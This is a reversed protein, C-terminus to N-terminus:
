ATAEPTSAQADRGGRDGRDRPAEMGGPAGMAGMGGSSTTSATFDTTADGAVLKGTAGEALGPVSLTVCQFSVPVTCRALVEGSESEVSLETNASGNLSVLAFPQTSGESFTEAMGAGGALIVTGGTVTAGYEYDLASDGAGSSAGVLEGGTVEVYGNSDVADGGANIAVVGGNIQILCDESANAGMPGGAGGRGDRAGFGGGQEGDPMQGPEVGEPLEPRQGGRGNQADAGQGGDGQGEGGQDGAHDDQGVTSGADGSADITADNSDREAVAANIGDDSATINLEGNNVIVEQAEIGGECGTVTFTGGDISVFGRTPDEDNSSKVGDGGATIAFSGDAVKVCDKGRLGDEKAVVTIAGGTVVLDDKSNVGHRYNGEVSLAGTGNITLDAKSYLAANPEDEGEVLEYSAGDALTNQTGDALTVFVKDAQQINLAPGAENRISAGSLVIQVKDQDGANVVLSGATLEGTVAYTGAASITVTAGEVAAGEGSVTAGQGSLAINTASAVDYSADKDRDSYAFDMGPIDILSAWDVEGTTGTTGNDGQAQDSQGQETKEGAGEAAEEFTGGTCGALALSGALAVALAGCSWARRRAVCAGMMENTKLM